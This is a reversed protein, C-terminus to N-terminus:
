KRGRRPDYQYDLTTKWAGESVKSLTKRNKLLFVSLDKPPFFCCLRSFFCGCKMNYKVDLVFMDIGKLMMFRVEERVQRKEYGPVVATM